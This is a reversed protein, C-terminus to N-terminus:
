PESASTRSTKAANRAPTGCATQPVARVDDGQPGPARRPDHEVDRARHELGAARPERPAADVDAAGHRARVVRAVRRRREVAHTSAPASGPCAAARQGVEGAGPPPELAEPRRRRARGDDVVVRVVRGLDRRRDVRGPREPRPPDHGDELRM